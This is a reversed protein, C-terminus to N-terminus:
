SASLSLIPQKDSVHVGHQELLAIAAPLDIPHQRTTLDPLGLIHQESLVSILKSAQNRGIEMKDMLLAASVPEGQHGVIILLANKLPTTLRSISPAHPEIEETSRHEENMAGHAILLKRVRIVALTRLNNTGAPSLLGMEELYKVIQLLKTLPVRGQLCALIVQGNENAQALLCQLATILVQSTDSEGTQQQKSIVTDQQM